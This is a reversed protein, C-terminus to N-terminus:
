KLIIESGNREMKLNFTECIVKLIDDLSQDHFTTTYPQYAASANAIVIHVDYAESLVETLKHLPTGKCVFEKTRYYNYLEDTNNEMYPEEKDASVTAKQHPNVRIAHEKKAVEVIGTEVIVETKEATSKVNFSTGVVKISSKDADIIFPKKKDPTINFFAEGKLTVPRTDGTFKAPYSISSNRNLTVMSGDPLTVTETKDKAQATLMNGGGAGSIFYWLGSIGLVMILIAAMRKITFGGLPITKNKPPAAEDAQVRQMFRGWAEDTNVNSTSALQQSKDWILKFQDFYKRNQESEDIWQEVEGRETETAEGLLYKVLVDDMHEM